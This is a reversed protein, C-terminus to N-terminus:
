LSLVQLGACGNRLAVCRLVGVHCHMAGSAAAGSAWKSAELLVGGDGVVFQTCVGQAPYDAKPAGVRALEGNEEGENCGGGCGCCELGEEELANDVLSDGLVVTM